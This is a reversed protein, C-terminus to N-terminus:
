LSRSITPARLTAQVTGEYPHDLKNHSAGQQAGRMNQNQTAKERLWREATLVAGRRGPM